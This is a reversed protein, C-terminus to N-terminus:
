GKRQLFQRGLSREELSALKCATCLQPQLSCREPNCQRAIRPDLRQLFESGKLDLEKSQEIQAVGESGFEHTVAKRM